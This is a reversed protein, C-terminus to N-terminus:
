CLPAPGADAAPTPRTDRPVVSLVTETHPSGSDQSILQTSLDAAVCQHPGYGFSHLGPQALKRLGGLSRVIRLTAGISRTEICWIRVRWLITRQVSRVGSLQHDKAPRRALRWAVAV